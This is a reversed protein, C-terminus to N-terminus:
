ATEGAQDEAQDMVESITGDVRPPWPWPAFFGTKVGVRQALTPRAGIVHLALFKQWAATQRHDEIWVWNGRPAAHHAFALLQPTVPQPYIVRDNSILPRIHAVAYLNELAKAEESGRLIPALKPAGTKDPASASKAPKKKSAEFEAREALQRGVRERRAKVERRPRMIEECALYVERVNPLFDKQIPLGSAPHTVACIVDEPYRTLVATIAAVYTDPDAADSKRYCGLLLRAREAAYVTLV